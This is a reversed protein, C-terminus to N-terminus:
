HCIGAPNKFRGAVGQFVGLLVLMVGDDFLGPDRCVVMDELHSAAPATEGNLGHFLRAAPHGAYGNGLGLVIIGSVPNEFLAQVIADGKMEPIISLHM